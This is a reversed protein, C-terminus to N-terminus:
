ADRRKLLTSDLTEQAAPALGYKFARRLRQEVSELFATGWDRIPFGSTDLNQGKGM